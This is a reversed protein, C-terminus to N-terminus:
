DRMIRCVDVIIIAPMAMTPSSLWQIPAIGLVGLYYNIMGFQYNFLLRFTLGIVVNTVMMPLLILSRIIGKGKLDHNLLLALGMGLFFELSIAGAMFGLTIGVSHFFEGNTLLQIYNELGVFPIATRFNYLTWEHFSLWFSYGLPYILIIFLVLFAPAIFLVPEVLRWFRRFGSQPVSVPKGLSIPKSEM